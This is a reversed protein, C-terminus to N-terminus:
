KSGCLMVPRVVTRYFMVKLNPPMRKDRLIGSTERCNIWYVSRRRVIDMGFDVSDTTASGLHKLSNIKKYIAKRRRHFASDLGKTM